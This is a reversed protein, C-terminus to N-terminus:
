VLFNRIEFFDFDPQRMLVIADMDMEEELFRPYMHELKNWYLVLYVPDRNNIQTLFDEESPQIHTYLYLYWLWEIHPNIEMPIDMQIDVPIAITIDMPTAMPIDTPINM